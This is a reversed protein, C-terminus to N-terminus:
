NCTPWLTTKVFWQKSLFPEIIENCRLLIRYQPCLNRSKERTKQATLDEVVKERCAFRELGEYPGANKNMRGSEDM